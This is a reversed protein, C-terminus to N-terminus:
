DATRDPSPPELLMTVSTAALQETTPWPTRDCRPGDHRSASFGFGCGRASSPSDIPPRAPPRQAGRAIALQLAIRRHEARLQTELDAARAALTRRLHTTDGHVEASARRLALILEGLNSPDIRRDTCTFAIDWRSLETPDRLHEIREALARVISSSWSSRNVAQISSTGPDSATPLERALVAEAETVTAPVFRDSARLIVTAAVLAADRERLRARLRDCVEPLVSLALWVTARDDTSGRDLALLPELQAITAGQALAAAVARGPPSCDDVIADTWRRVLRDVTAESPSRVSFMRELRRPPQGAARVDIRLRYRGPPLPVVPERSSWVSQTLTQVLAFSVAPREADLPHGERAFVPRVPICRWRGDPTERELMRDCRDRAEAPATSERPDLPPALRVARPSSTAVLRVRWHGPDTPEIPELIVADAPALLPSPERASPALCGPASRAAATRAAPGCHLLAAVAAFSLAVRSTVM